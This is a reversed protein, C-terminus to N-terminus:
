FSGKNVMNWFYKHQEVCALLVQGCDMMRLALYCQFEATIQPLQLRTYCSFLININESLVRTKGRSKSPNLSTKALQLHFSSCWRIVLALQLFCRLLPFFTFAHKHTYLCTRVYKMSILLQACPPLTGGLRGTLSFFAALRGNSVASNLGAYSPVSNTSGTLRV